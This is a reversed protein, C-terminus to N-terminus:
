GRGAHLRNLVGLRALALAYRKELVVETQKLALLERNRATIREGALRTYDSLNRRAPADLPENARWDPSLEEIEGMVRTVERRCSALEAEAVAKRAELVQTLKAIDDHTYSM